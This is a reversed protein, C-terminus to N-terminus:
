SVTGICHYSLGTAALMISIMQLCYSSFPFVTDSYKIMIVCPLTRDVSISNNPGKNENNNM